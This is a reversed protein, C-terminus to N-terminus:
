IFLSDQKLNQNLHKFSFQEKSKKCFFQKKLVFFIKLKKHPQM